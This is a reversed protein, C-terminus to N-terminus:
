FFELFILSVKVTCLERKMECMDEDDDWPLKATNLFVVFMSMLFDHIDDIPGRTWGELSEVCQYAATGTEIDLHKEYKIPKGRIKYRESDGFDSFNSLFFTLFKFNHVNSFKGLLFLKKNDSGLGYALNEAKVDNHFIDFKLHM